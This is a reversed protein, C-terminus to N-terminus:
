PVTDLPCSKYKSGDVKTASRVEHELHLIPPAGEGADPDALALVRFMCQEAAEDASYARRQFRHNVYCLGLADAADYAARMDACYLSIHAGRNLPRGDADEGAEAHCVARRETRVFSLTQRPTGDARAGGGTSVVLRREDQAVVPAGLVREYFRGLGDLPADSGVHVTLDVIARAESAAGGPQSGRSDDADSLEVLSFRSGWPDTLAFGRPTPEASFASDSLCAPPGAALRGRVGDLSGYALTIVGDFVQAGPAGESLHFQHIGANAWVTGSGADLNAAKRTDPVLGLVDFYFARVLDARAAPGSPCPQLRAPVLPPPPTRAHTPQRECVM